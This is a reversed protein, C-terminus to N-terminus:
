FINWKLIEKLILLGEALEAETINLAPLLRIKDKAKLVLLGKEQCKSVVYDVDLTTKIGIM